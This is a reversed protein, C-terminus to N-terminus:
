KGGEPPAKGTTLGWGTENAMDRGRAELSKPRRMLRKTFVDGAADILVGDPGQFAYTAIGNEVSLLRPRYHRLIDQKSAPMDMYYFAGGYELSRLSAEFEPATSWPPLEVTFRGVRGLGGQMIRPQGAKGQRMNAGFIVNVATDFDDASWGIGRGESMRYGAMMDLAAESLTEMYASYEPGMDGLIAELRQNVIKRQDSERANPAPLFFKADRGERAERGRLAMDRQAKPLGSLIEFSKGIEASVRSREPKPLASAADLAASREAIDNSKWGKGLDAAKRETRAQMNGDILEAIRRERNTATGADIRGQLQDRARELERTPQQAIGEAEIADVVMYRFDTIDSEPVKAARMQQILATIEAPKPVEQGREIRLEFDKATDLLARRQENAAAQEQAAVTRDKAAVMSLWPSRGREGLVGDYQGSEILERVTAQRGQDILGTFQKATAFERLNSQMIAKTTEDLDLGDIFADGELLMEARAKGSPNGELSTGRTELWKAYSESIFRSRTQAEWAQEGIIARAGASAVTPAFRNRIEPDDPLSRMFEDSRENVYARAQDTYGTAGIDATKRLEELGAATDVDHQAKRMAADAIQVNRRRSEERMAIDHDVARERENLEAERYSVQAVVGGLQQLGQGIAAGVGPARQTYRAVVNSPLQARYGFDM